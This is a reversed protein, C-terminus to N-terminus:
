VFVTAAFVFSIDTIYTLQRLMITIWKNLAVAYLCHPIVGTVSYWYYLVLMYHAYCVTLVVHCQHQDRIRAIRPWCTLM